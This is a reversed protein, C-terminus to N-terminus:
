NKNLRKLLEKEVDALWTRGHAGSGPLNEVAVKYETILEENTIKGYM